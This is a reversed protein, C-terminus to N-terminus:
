PGPGLSLSPEMFLGFSGCDSLGTRRGSLQTGACDKQLHRAFFSWIASAGDIDRSTRGVLEIPFAATPHPLTHGGGHVVMMVVEPRGKATWRRTEVWAGDETDRDPHREVEPQASIGVLNRSYAATAEASIVHGLSAGDPPRVEGGAWPNIPDDTGSVLLISVPTNSAACDREDPVPLHAGIAAFSDFDAPAELALRFVLHGGNSYGVVFVGALDRETIEKAHQIVARLFAIDDVAALATHYPARARCDNWQRGLADPYAVLIGHKDALGDFAGDTFRRFREGDGGSGHLAIILAPHEALSEPQYLRVVRHLGQVQLYMPALPKLARAAQETSAEQGIAPRVTLAVFSSSILAGLLLHTTLNRLQYRMDLVTRVPMVDHILGVGQGALFPLEEIQGETDPTPVFSTFRHLSIMEGALKMTGTIPQSELDKPM